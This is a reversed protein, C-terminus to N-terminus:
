TTVALHREKTEPQLTFVDVIQSLSTAQDRLSSAAAAAQEVLATNQQTNSEMDLIAQNIQAIEDSQLQSARSIDGMLNTVRQISTVIEEMTHGAQQVMSTGNDVKTVSDNILSSIERAATASRQALNRVESAVVAFGRGQEGARAAEVAANLALINTQFAISDIVGIIDAIKRSSRNIEDMMGVVDAVVTGGKNAVESATQVLHNAQNANEANLRVNHTLKDVSVVTNALADAQRETRQSLDHNGAAIEGSANEVFHSSDRIRHLVHAIDNAFRNYASAIQTLEDQNEEALRHTFDGTGAATIATRIADLRHLTYSIAWALLTTAIVCALLTNILSTMAMSSLAQTSEAKDIVIVLRWDSHPVPQSFLMGERQGLLWTAGDQQLSQLSLGEHLASLPKLTLAADPHVILAGDGGVLFAYSSATPRIDAITALVSEMMVDGAVVGQVSNATGVLDAFTILMKGTSVGIYPASVFPGDAAVAGKYWSRSTPDYNPRSREASFLFSRDPYGVFTQDFDGGRAALVLQNMLVEQPASAYPKLASIMNQKAVLWQGLTTAHSQALQTTQDQWQQQIHRSTSLFSIGGIALVAVAVISICLAILRTKLSLNSLSLRM